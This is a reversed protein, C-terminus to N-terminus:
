PEAIVLQPGRGFVAEKSDFAARYGSSMSIAFAQRPTDRIAPTVDLEVWSNAAVPGSSAVAQGRKPATRWTVHHESWSTRAVRRVEIGSRATRSHMRLVARAIQNGHVDFKFLAVARRTGAAKIQDSTGFNRQPHGKTVYTDALASAVRSTQCRTDTAPNYGLKVFEYSDLPIARLSDVNLVGNWVWGRGEMVTNEVKLMVEGGTQDGVVAGYTQLARAVVRAAPSLNLKNLDVSPKIRIRAGEPPAYPEETSGDSGVMPFAYNASATNVAIKLVHDISGAQIEDWRVAHIAGPVGRHGFNRQDDSQALSGHLGNSSLYYYAGGGASWTNTATDYSAKWMHAVGDAQLDYVVMEGDTTAAPRAGVPIRLQTFEPPLPYRTPVVSYVPDDQKTWYIPTGWGGNSQVGSLKIFPSVNDAKLFAIM